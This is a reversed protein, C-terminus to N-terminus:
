LDKGADVLLKKGNLKGNDIKETSKYNRMRILHGFCQM